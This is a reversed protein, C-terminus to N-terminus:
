KTFNRCSCYCENMKHQTTCSTGTRTKQRAAEPRCEDFFALLSTQNGSLASCLEAPLSLCLSSSWWTLGRAPRGTLRYRTHQHHGPHHRHTHSDAQRDQRYWDGNGSRTDSTKGGPQFRLVTLQNLKETAERIRRSPRTRETLTKDKKHQHGMTTKELLNQLVKQQSNYIYIYKIARTSFSPFSLQNITHTAHQSIACSNAM